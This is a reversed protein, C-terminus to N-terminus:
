RQGSRDGAVATSGRHMPEVPSQRVTAALTAGVRDSRHLGINARRMVVLSLWADSDHDGDAETPQHLRRAQRRHQAAVHVTDVPAVVAHVLPIPAAATTIQPLHDSRAMLRMRGAAFEEVLRRYEGAVNEHRLHTPNAIAELFSRDLLVAPPVLRRRAPAPPDVAGAGAADLGSGLTELAAMARGARRQRQLSEVCNWFWFTGGVIAASVVGDIVWHEGFYVLAALMAVPYSMMLARVWWWRVAPLFFAPVFLAFAVHLSPLAAVPNAWDLSNSWGRVFGVFGLDYFGRWTHRTITIPLTDYGYRANGAIWPPATPLVVFMACSVVLVTALRKMFRVWLARSVVWVAALAVVPVVFHSYYIVSGVDDYWRIDNAHFFRQQLWVTPDAGFFMARDINRPATVQLPFGLQDAAGHTTEYAFWMTAYIAADVVLVGWRRWPKGIFACLLFLGLAIAVSIRDVLLGDRRLRVAYAVGFVVMAAVRVFFLADRPVVPFAETPAVVPTCQREPALSSEGSRWVQM